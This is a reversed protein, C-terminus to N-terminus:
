FVRSFPTSMYLNTGRIRPHDQIAFVPHLLSSNPSFTFVNNSSAFLNCALCHVAFTCHPVCPYRPPFMNHFRSTNSRRSQDPRWGRPSNWPRHACPVSIRFIDADDRSPNFLVFRNHTFRCKAAFPRTCKDQTHPPTIPSLPWQFGDLRNTRRIRPPSGISLMSSHNQSCIISASTGM